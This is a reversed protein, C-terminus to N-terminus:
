GIEDKGDVERENGKWGSLRKEVIQSNMASLTFKIYIYLQGKLLM